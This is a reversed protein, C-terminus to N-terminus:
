TAISKVKQKATSRLKGLETALLEAQAKDLKGVDIAEIRAACASIFNLNIGDAGRAARSRHRIEGRTLGSEKYKAYLSNMKEQSGQKAIEVLIGRSTKPDSRCDEKVSAPLKTLSLIESLTSEAKGLVMSLDSLQYDHQARLREIAEAEEIATLNERLLNEVISIEIPNGDTLVAPITTRGALLSAQYRREGSVVLLRGNEDRRVLVPQLVGHKEISGKLELLAKEDFYKRPQGEDLHLESMNLEYIKGKEYEVNEESM